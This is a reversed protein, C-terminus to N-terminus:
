QSQLNGNERKVQICYLSSKKGETPLKIQRVTYGNMGLIGIVIRRDDQNFVRITAEPEFDDPEAGLLYSADINLRDAIGLLSSLPIDTKATEYAGIATESKGVSTALEKQTIGAKERYKKILVGVEKAEM